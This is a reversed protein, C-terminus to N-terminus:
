LSDRSNVSRVANWQSSDNGTLAVHFMYSPNECLNPRDMHKKQSPWRWIRLRLIRPKLEYLLRVNSVDHFNARVLPMLFMQHVNSIKPQILTASSVNARVTPLRNPPKESQENGLLQILEGLM